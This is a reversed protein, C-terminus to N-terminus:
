FVTVVNKSTVGTQSAPISGASGSTSKSAATNSLAEVSYGVSITSNLSSLSWYYPVLVTCTILGSQQTNADVTVSNIFSALTVNDFVSITVGCTASTVAINQWSYAQISLSVAGQAIQQANARNSVVTAVALVAFVLCRLVLITLSNKM